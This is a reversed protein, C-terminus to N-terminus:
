LKKKITNYYPEIGYRNLMYAINEITCPSSISGGRPQHPFSKPDIAVNTPLLDFSSNALQAPTTSPLLDPARPRESLTPVSPASNIEPQM